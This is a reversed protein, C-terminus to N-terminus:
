GRPSFNSSSQHRMAQREIDDTLRGGSRAIYQAIEREAQRQRSDLIADGIRWLAGTILAIVGRGTSPKGNLENRPAANTM